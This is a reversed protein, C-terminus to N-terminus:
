KIISKLLKRYQEIMKDFTFNAKATELAKNGIKERLAPNNALFNIKEVAENVSNILYGNLGNKIVYPAIGIPYSVPVMKSAMAEILTLQCAETRSTSIFIQGPQYDKQLGKRDLGAILDTKLEKKFLKKYLDRSEEKLTGFHIYVKKPIKVNQLIEYARDQGKELFTYTLYNARTTYVVSSEKVFDKKSREFWYNPIGNLIVEIKEKELGFLEILQKKVSPSVAIIKISERACISETAKSIELRQNINEVNEEFVDNFVKLWKDTIKNETQNQSKLSNLVNLYSGTDVSHFHQIIKSSQIFPLTAFSTGMVYEYKTAEKYLSFYNLLSGVIHVQYYYDTDPIIAKINLEESLSNFIDKNLELAGTLRNSPALIFGFKNKLM